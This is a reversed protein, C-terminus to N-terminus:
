KTPTVMKCISLCTSLKLGTLGKQLCPLYKCVEVCQKTKTPNVSVNAAKVKQCHIKKTQMVIITLKQRIHNVGAMM